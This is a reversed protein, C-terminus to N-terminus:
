WVLRATKNSFVLGKVYNLDRRFMELHYASTDRCVYSNQLKFEILQCMDEIISILTREVNSQEFGGILDSTDTGSHLSIVRLPVGRRAALFKVLSSKGSRETGTIIPLWKLELCQILAEACNLLGSPVTLPSVIPPTWSIGSPKQLRSHGIVL